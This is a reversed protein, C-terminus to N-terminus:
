DDESGREPYLIELVRYKADKELFLAINGIAERVVELRMKHPPLEPGGLHALIATREPSELLHALDIITQRALEQGALQDDQLRKRDEQVRRALHEWAGALNLNQDRERRAEDLEARLTDLCDAAETAKPDPRPHTAPVDRDIRTM